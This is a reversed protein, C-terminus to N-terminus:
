FRAGYLLAVVMAAGPSILLFRTTLLSIPLLRTTM